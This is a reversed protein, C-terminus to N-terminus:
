QLLAAQFPLLNILTGSQGFNFMLLIKMKLLGRGVLALCHYWEKTAGGVGGCGCCLLIIDFHFHLILQHGATVFLHYPKYLGFGVGLIYSSCDLCAILAIIYLHGFQYIKNLFAIMIASLM